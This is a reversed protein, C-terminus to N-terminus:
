LKNNNKKERKGMATTNTACTENHIRTKRGKDFSETKGKKWMGVCEYTSYFCILIHFVNMKWRSSTHTSKESPFANATTAVICLASCLHSFARRELPSKKQPITRSNHENDPVSQREDQALIPGNEDGKQRRHIIKRGKKARALLFAEGFLSPSVCMFM